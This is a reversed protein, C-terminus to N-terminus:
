IDDSHKSYYKYRDYSNTTLQNVKEQLKDARESETVTVWIMCMFILLMWISNAVKFGGFWYKFM